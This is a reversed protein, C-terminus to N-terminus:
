KVDVTLAPYPLKGESGTRVNVITREVDPISLVIRELETAEENRAVCGEVWVFKRKVTVWLSTDRFKPEAQFRAEVAKGITADYRYENPESCKGAMWCSTGREVRSHSESKMEAETLLPGRPKPCNPIGDRVQFFPDNFWNKLKASDEAHATCIASHLMLLAVVSYKM